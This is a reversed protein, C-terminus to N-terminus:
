HTVEILPNSDFGDMKAHFSIALLFITGRKKKNYLFRKGALLENRFQLTFNRYHCMISFSRFIFMSNTQKTRM